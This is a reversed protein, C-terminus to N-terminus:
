SMLIIRDSLFIAESISHTVLVATKGTRSWIDQLDLNMQDRTLADLAGFPEDMMLIPADHLLARCLAVRQRMGGSLQWPRKEEFGELGVQALLSRARQRAADLDLKRVEAQLMVNGLVTRWDVLLD